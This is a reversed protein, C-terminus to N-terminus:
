WLEGVLLLLYNQMQVQLHGAGAIVLGVFLLHHYFVGPVVVLLGDMVLRLHCLVEEM